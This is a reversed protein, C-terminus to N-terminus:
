DLTIQYKTDGPNVIQIYDSSTVFPKDSLPAFGLSGTGKIIGNSTTFATGYFNTNSKEEIKNIKGSLTKLQDLILSTEQSINVEGSIEAPKVKLVQILSKLDSDKSEYTNKLTESIENIKQEVIDVRLSDNYEIDRIGQIDFIRDTKEDKILTVPLDFAQRIGLEYLVNPNKGSLDCIAMESHIISALVDTIIVNTKNVDDARLPKFGAKICAPKILHEYVRKFHGAPYDAVDSIPM